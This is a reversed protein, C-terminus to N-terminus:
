VVAKADATSTTSTAARIADLAVVSRLLSDEMDTAANVVPTEEDAIRFFVKNASRLSGFGVIGAIIMLAILALFGALISASLKMRRRAM